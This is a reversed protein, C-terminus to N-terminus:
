YSPPPIAQVPSVLQPAAAGLPTTNSRVSIPGLRPVPLPRAALRANVPLVMSAHAPGLGFITALSSGTVPVVDSVTLACEGTPKCRITGHRHADCGFESKLDEIGFPEGLAKQCAANLDNRSLVGINIMKAYVAEPGAFLAGALVGTLLLCRLSMFMM